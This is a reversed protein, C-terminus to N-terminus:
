PVMKNIIKFFRKALQEEKFLKMRMVEEIFLDKRRVTRKIDCLEACLKSKKFAVKRSRDLEKSAKYSFWVMGCKDCEEYKIFATSSEVGHCNWNATYNGVKAIRKGECNHCDMKPSKYESKPDRLFKLLELVEHAYEFKVHQGIINMTILKEGGNTLREVLSRYMDEMVLLMNAQEDKNVKRVFNNFRLHRNFYKKAM